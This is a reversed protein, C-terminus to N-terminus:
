QVTHMFMLLSKEMAKFLVVADDLNEQKCLGDLLISMQATVKLIFVHVGFDRSSALLMKYTVTLM